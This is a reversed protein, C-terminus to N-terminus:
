LCPFSLCVCKLRGTGGAHMYNVPGLLRTVNSSRHRVLLAGGDRVNHDDVRFYLHAVDREDSTIIAMEGRVIGCTPGNRWTGHLELGDLNVAVGPRLALNGRTTRYRIYVSVRASNDSSVLDPLGDGNWDCVCPATYGWRSEGPGQIDGRYGGQVLIETAMDGDGVTVTVPPDFMDLSANRRSFFVRGESSGAMIDDLGDLDWDAVSVTPTSGTSLTAGRQLLPGAHRLHLGSNVVTGSQRQEKRRNHASTQPRNVVAEVTVFHLGNEGGIILDTNINCYLGSSGAAPATVSSGDRPYGIPSAAIVTSMFLTGTAVDVAPVPALMTENTVGGDVTFVLGTHSGAVVIPVGDQRVVGLRLGMLGGTWGSPTVNRFNGASGDALVDFAVMSTLAMSGRYIGDGGYPFYSADRWGTHGDIEGTSRESVGSSLTGYVTLKGDAQPVM